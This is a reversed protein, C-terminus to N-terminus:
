PNMVTNKRTNSCNFKKLKRTQINCMNNKTKEILLRYKMNKVTYPLTVRFANRSHKKFNMLDKDLLRCPFDPIKEMIKSFIDESSCASAVTKLKEPSVRKAGMHDGDYKAESLIQYLKFKHPM